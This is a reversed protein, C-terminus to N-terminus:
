KKAADDTFSDALLSAAMEPPLNHAAIFFRLYQDCNLEPPLTKANNGFKTALWNISGGARQFETLLKEMDADTMPPHTVPHLKGDAMATYLVVGFRMQMAEPLREVADGNSTDEAMAVCAKVDHEKLWTMGEVLAGLIDTLDKTPAHASDAFHRALMQTAFDEGLKRGSATDFAGARVQELLKRELAGTEEPYAEALRAYIGHMGLNLGLRLERLIDEDSRAAPRATDPKAVQVVMPPPAATAPASAAPSTLGLAALIVLATAGRCATNM